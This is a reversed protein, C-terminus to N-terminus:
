PITSLNIFFAFLFAKYIMQISSEGNPIEQYDWDTNILTSYQAGVGGCRM